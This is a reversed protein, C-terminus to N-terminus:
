KLRFIVVTLFILMGIIFLLILLTNFDLLSFNYKRKSFKLRGKKRLDRMVNFTKMSDDMKSFGNMAEDCLSCEQLHMEISHMESPSLKQNHYDFIEERTLHRNKLSNNEM